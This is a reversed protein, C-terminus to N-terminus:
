DDLLLSAYSENASAATTGSDVNEATSRLSIGNTIPMGGEFTFTKATDAALEAKWIPTDNEDAAAAQDYLKLTHATASDTNGFTISYIRNAGVDTSGTATVSAVYSVAKAGDTGTNVYLAGNADFQAPSYDGDTGGLAELDDNRVGLFQVGTDATTHAADEAKGLDTAGTGPTSDQVNVYIAGNADTLCNSYDGDTGSSSAATDTRKCLAVVGPDGSVAAADENKASLPRSAYAPSLAAVFVLAALLVTYFKRFM